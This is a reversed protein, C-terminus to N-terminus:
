SQSGLRHPKHVFYYIALPWWILAFIPYVAWITQPTAIVNLSIFFATSLLTGSVSFLMIHRSRALAAGLPWWLLVYVPFIAWPFGPSILINLLIYYVIGVTSLGLAVPLGRVKRGLFVFAPWLLVPYVTFLVWPYSPSNMFNDVAFFALIILSGIVSYPKATGPKMLFVSLPWWIVAFAPYFFWIYSPSYIYNIVISLSIITLGGIVALTKGYKAGFFVAIPWWIVAISPYVFWPYSWSTLYNTIFLFAIVILSGVLSFSIVYRRDNEHYKNM